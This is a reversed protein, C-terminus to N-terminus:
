CNDNRTYSVFTTGDPIRLFYNNSCGGNDSYAITNNYTTSTLVTGDIYANNYIDVGSYIVFDGLHFSDNAAFNYDNISVRGSITIPGSSGEADYYVEFSYNYTLAYEGDVSILAQGGTNTGQLHMYINSDGQAFVSATFSINSSNCQGGQNAGTGVISFDQAPIQSVEVVYGYGSQGDIEFTVMDDVIFTGQPYSASAFSGYIDLCDNVYYYERPGASGSNSSSLISNAIAIYM